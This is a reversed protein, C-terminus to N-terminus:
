PHVGPGAGGDHRPLAALAQLDAGASTSKKASDRVRESHYDGITGAQEVKAGDQLWPSAFALVDGKVRNGNADYKKSPYAAGAGGPPGWLKSLTLGSHVAGVIDLRRSHWLYRLTPSPALSTKVLCGARFM